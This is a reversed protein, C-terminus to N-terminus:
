YDRTSIIVTVASILLAQTIFPYNPPVTTMFMTEETESLSAKVPELSQFCMDRSYLFVLM